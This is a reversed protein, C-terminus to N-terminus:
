CLKKLSFFLPWRKTLANVFKLSKRTNPPLGTAIKIKNNKYLGDATGLTADDKLFKMNEKSKKKKNYKLKDMYQLNNGISANKYTLWGLLETKFELELAVDWM